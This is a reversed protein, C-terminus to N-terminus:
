KAVGTGSSGTGPPTRRRNTAGTRGGTGTAPAAGAADPDGNAAAASLPAPEPDEAATTWQMEFMWRYERGNLTRVTMECYAPLEDAQTASIADKLERQKSEANTKLFRWSVGAIRSAVTIRKIPTRSIGEGPRTGGPYIVWDIDYGIVPSGDPNRPMSPDFAVRTDRQWASAGGERATHPRVEFAGRVIGQADPTGDPNAARIPPEAVVIELRQGGEPTPELILRPQRAANEKTGLAPEDGAADSPQGDANIGGATPATGANAGAAAASVEAGSMTRSGSASGPSAGPTGPRASGAPTGDANFSGVPNAASPAPRTNRQRDAMVLTRMARQVTSHLRALEQTEEYHAAANRETVRMGSFMAVCAILVIGGLMAALSVELLTFGRRHALM